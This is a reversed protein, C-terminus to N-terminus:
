KHKRRSEHARNIGTSLIAQPTNQGNMNVNISTHAMVWECTHCSEYFHTGHSLHMRANWTWRWQRTCWSKNVHTVHSTCTRSLVWTSTSMSNVNISARAMVWEHTDCSEYVRTFHTLHMHGNTHVNTSTHAMVWKGAYCSQHVHTVHSLHMKENRDVNM